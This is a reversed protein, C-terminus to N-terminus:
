RRCYPCRTAANGPNRTVARERGILNSDNHARNDRANQQRKQLKDPGLESDTM